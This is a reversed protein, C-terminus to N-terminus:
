QRGYKADEKAIQKAALEKLKEVIKNTEVQTPPTRTSLNSVQEDITPLLWVPIESDAFNSIPQSEALAIAREVWRVIGQRKLFDNLQRADKTVQLSPNGRVDVWGTKTQMKWKTGEVRVTARSSKAEVAWVGGRGVLVFDIDDSHGPLHLNRFITWSSDLVTRLRDLIKEEGELGARFTRYTDLRTKALRFYQFLIAVVIFLTPIGLLPIPFFAGRLIDIIIGVVFISSATLAVGLYAASFALSEIEQDQLYKSGEIVQSGFRSSLPQGISYALLTRAAERFRPDYGADIAWGLDGRDLQKSDWLKGMPERPARTGQWIVQRAEELSMTLQVVVQRSDKKQETQAM